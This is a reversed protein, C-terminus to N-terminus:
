GRRRCRWIHILSLHCLSLFFSLPFKNATVATQRFPVSHCFTLWFVKCPALCCFLVCLVDCCHLFCYFAVCSALSALTSCPLDFVNSIPLVSHQLRRSNYTGLPPARRRPSMISMPGSSPPLVAKAVVLRVCDQTNKLANAAEDHSVNELSFGNVQFVDM